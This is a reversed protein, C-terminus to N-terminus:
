ILSSLFGFFTIFKKTFRSHTKLQSEKRFHLLDFSPFCAYSIVASGSDLGLDTEPESGTLQNGSFKM